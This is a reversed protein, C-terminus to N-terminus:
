AADLSHEQAASRMRHEVRGNLQNQLHTACNQPCERGVGRM